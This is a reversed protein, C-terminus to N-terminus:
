PRSPTDPESPAVPSLGKSLKATTLQTHIEDIFEQAGHFLIV